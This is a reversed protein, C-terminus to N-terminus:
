SDAPAYQGRYDRARLYVSRLISPPSPLTLAYNIEFTFDLKDCINRRGGGEM